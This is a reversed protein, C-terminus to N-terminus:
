RRDRSRGYCFVKMRGSGECSTCSGPTPREMPHATPGPVIGGDCDPCDRFEFSCRRVAERLMRRVRGEGGFSMGEPGHKDLDDLYKLAARAADLLRELDEAAVPPPHIRLEDM